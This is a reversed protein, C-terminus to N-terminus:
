LRTINSRGHYERSGRCCALRPQFPYRLLPLFRPPDERGIWKAPRTVRFRPARPALATLVAPHDGDRACLEPSEGLENELVLHEFDAVSQLDTALQRTQPDGSQQM